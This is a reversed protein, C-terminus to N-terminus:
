CFKRRRGIGLLGVLASGFLWVAAPLPVAVLTLSLPTAMMAGGGALGTMCNPGMLGGNSCDAYMLKSINAASVNMPNLANFNLTFFANQTGDTPAHNGTPFPVTNYTLPIAFINTSNNKFVTALIGGNGDSASALQYSLNVTPTAGQMAQNMTGHLNTIMQTSSDYSFSGTFTTNTAMPENFVATVSYDM